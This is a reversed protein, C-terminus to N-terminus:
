RSGDCGSRRRGLRDGAVGFMPSILTGLFQLSGILALQQVSGTENLMYWGLILTEMEFACSTLLVAPWQFRFSRGKFASLM